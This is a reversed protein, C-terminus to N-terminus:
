DIQDGIEHTPGHSVAVVYKQLKPDWIAITQYFHDVAHSVAFAAPLSCAGNIKLLRGGKLHGDAKLKDLAAVADKVIESNTGPTGFGVKLTDGELAINFTPM